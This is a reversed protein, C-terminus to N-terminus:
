CVHSQAVKWKKRSQKVFKLACITFNKDYKKLEEVSSISKIQLLNSALGDDDSESSAM